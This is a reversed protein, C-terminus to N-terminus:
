DGYFGKVIRAKLAAKANADDTAIMEKALAGLEQGSLQRGCTEQRLFQAVKERDAPALHKLEDIIEVATM